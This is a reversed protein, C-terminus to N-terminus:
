GQFNNEAKAIAEPTLTSIRGIKTLLDNDVAIYRKYVFELDLPDNLDFGSLDVQGRKQMFLLKKLWGDDEPVGDILEVGFMCMADMVAVGRDRNAKEMLRVYVPDNPNPEDRGKQENHWMPVPPDEIRSSVEEILTTSVPLLRVRVGSKTTVTESGTETAIEKAVEVAKSKSAM